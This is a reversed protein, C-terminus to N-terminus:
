STKSGMTDQLKNGYSHEDIWFGIDDIYKVRIYFFTSFWTYFFIRHNHVTFLTCISIKSWFVSVLRWSPMQTLDFGLCCLPTMLIEVWGLCFYLIKDLRLFLKKYVKSIFLWLHKNWEPVASYFLKWTKSIKVCFYLLSLYLIM